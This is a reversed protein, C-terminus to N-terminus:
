IAPETLLAYGGSQRGAASICDWCCRQKKADPHKNAQLVVVTPLWLSQM